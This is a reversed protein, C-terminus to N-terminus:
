LSRRRAEQPPEVGNPAAVRDMKMKLAAQKDASLLWRFPMLKNASALDLDGSATVKKFFAEAAAVGELSVVGEMSVRLWGDGEDEGAIEEEPQLCMSRDRDHFNKSYRYDIPYPERAFHRWRGPSIEQILMYGLQETMPLFRVQPSVDPTSATSPMAVRLLSSEARGDAHPAAYPMRAPWLNSM